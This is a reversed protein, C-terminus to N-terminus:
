TKCRLRDSSCFAAAVDINSLTSLVRFRRTDHTSTVSAFSGQYRETWFASHGGARAHCEMPSSRAKGKLSHTRSEPAGIHATADLTPGNM